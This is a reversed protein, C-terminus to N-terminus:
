NELLDFWDSINCLRELFNRMEVLKYIEGDGKLLEESENKILNINVLRRLNENFEKISLIHSKLLKKNKKEIELFISKKDFERKKSPNKALFAPLYNSLSERMIKRGSMAGESFFNIDQNIFQCILDEDLLPFKKNIGYSRALRREQEARIVLWSASVRNVISDRMGSYLDFEWNNEQFFNNNIIKKGENTLYRNVNIFKKEGKIKKLYAKPFFNFYNNRVLVKFTDFYSGTWKYLESLRFQSALDNQVNIGNHSLAQDGGLGSFMIKCNKKSLMAYPFSESDVLLPAGLRKIISFRDAKTHQFKINQNSPTLCNNSKINYFNRFENILPMECPTEMSWTFIDELPLNLKKVIIGLISNSDLGSSHEICIRERKFTLASQINHTIKERFLDCFKAYSFKRQEKKFPDIQYFNSIKGNEFSYYSSRPLRKIRKYPSIDFNCEGKLLAALFDLNIDGFQIKGHLSLAEEWEKVYYHKDLNEKDQIQFLSNKYFFDTKYVCNSLPNPDLYNFNFEM